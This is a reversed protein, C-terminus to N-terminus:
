SRRIVPAPRRAWSGSRLWAAAPPPPPPPPPPPSEANRWPSACSAAFLRREASGTANEAVAIAPHKQGSATTRPQKQPLLVCGAEAPFYNGAEPVNYRCDSTILAM